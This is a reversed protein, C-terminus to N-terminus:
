FNSVIGENKKMTQIAEEENKYNISYANFTYPFIRFYYLTGPTLNTFICKEVGYSINKATHSDPVAVNDIPTKIADFSINSMLLLYAHPLVGNVPDTWELEINHASFNEPYNSPQPYPAGHFYTTFTEGYDSSYDIYVFSYQTAYDYTARKVYFSGPQRGATYQV